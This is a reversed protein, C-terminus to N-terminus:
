NHYHAKNVYSEEAINHLNLRSALLSAEAKLFFWLKGEAYQTTM